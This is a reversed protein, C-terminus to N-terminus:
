HSTIRQLWPEAADSAPAAKKLFKLFYHPCTKPAEILLATWGLFKRFVFWFLVFVLLAAAGDRFNEPSM